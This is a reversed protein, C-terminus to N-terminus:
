KTALWDSNLYRFGELDKMVTERPAVYLTCGPGVGGHDDADFIPLLYVNDPDLHSWVISVRAKGRADNTPINRWEYIVRVGEHGPYDSGPWGWRTPQDYGRWINRVEINAIADYEGPMLGRLEFTQGNSITWVEVASTDLNNLCTGFAMPTDDTQASTVGVLSIMVVLMTLSMLRYNMANLM